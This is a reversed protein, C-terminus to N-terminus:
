FSVTGLLEHAAPWVVIAVQLAIGIGVAGVLWRNSFLGRTPLRVAYAYLVHAGVLVTFLM